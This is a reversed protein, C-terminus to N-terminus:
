RLATKIRTLAAQTAEACKQLVEETVGARQPKAPRNQPTYKRRVPRGQRLVWGPM